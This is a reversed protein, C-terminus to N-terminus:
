RRDGGLLEAADVRHRVSTTRGSENEIVLAQQLMKEAEKKRRMRRLLDAYVRRTCAESPHGVGYSASIIALAENLLGEASAYQGQHTQIEALLALGGALTPHGPRLIDRWMTMAKLVLREAEAYQGM